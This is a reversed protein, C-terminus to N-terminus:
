ETLEHETRVQHGGIAAIIDGRRIGGKGAPGVPVVAVVLAGRPVKLCFSDAIEPTVSRTSVGIWGRVVRGKEKLQALVSKALSSPIAFGIGESDRAYGAGIFTARGRQKDSIAM